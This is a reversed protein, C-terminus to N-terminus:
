AFKVAAESFGLAAALLDASACVGKLTSPSLKRFPDVTVTLARRAVAHTWTAVVRGDVLVVASIWGATRSVRSRYEPAFLHDRNAHGM